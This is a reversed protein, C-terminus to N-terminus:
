RKVQCRSRRVHKCKKYKFESCSWTGNKLRKKERGRERGDGRRCSISKKYRWDTFFYERTLYVCPWLFTINNCKAETVRNARRHSEICWLVAWKDREGALLCFASVCFDMCIFTFYQPPTILGYTIWPLLLSLSLSSSISCLLNPLSFFSSVFFLSFLSITMFIGCDLLKGLSERKLTDKVKSKEHLSVPLRSCYLACPCTITCPDNTTRTALLYLSLPSSNFARRRMCCLTLPLHLCHIVSLLTHPHFKGAAVALFDEASARYVEIYRQGIHHRHRKLAM